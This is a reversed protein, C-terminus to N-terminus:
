VEKKRKRCTPQMGPFSQAYVEPVRVTPQLPLSKMLHESLQRSSFKPSKNTLGPVMSTGNGGAGMNGLNKASTQNLVQREM